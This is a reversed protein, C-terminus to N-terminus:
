LFVLRRTTTRRTFLILWILVHIAYLLVVAWVVGGLYVAVFQLMWGQGDVIKLVYTFPYDLVAALTKAIRERTSFEYEWQWTLFETAMRAVIHVIPYVLFIFWHRLVRSRRGQREVALISFRILRGCEPCRAHPSVSRVNYGCGACILDDTIGGQDDVPWTDIPM